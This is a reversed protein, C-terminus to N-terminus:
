RSTAAISWCGSPVILLRIRAPSDRSRVSGRTRCSAAAALAGPHPTLAVSVMSWYGFLVGYLVREASHRRLLSNPFLPACSSGSGYNDFNLGSRGSLRRRDLRPDLQSDDANDCTEVTPAVTLPLPSDAMPAGCTRLNSHAPKDDGQQRGRNQDKTADGAVVVVRGAVLDILVVGVEARAVALVLYSGPPLPSVSELEGPRQADPVPRVSRAMRYRDTTAGNIQQVIAPIPVEAFNAHGSGLVSGACRRPRASCAGSFGAM